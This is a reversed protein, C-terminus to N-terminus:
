YSSSLMLKKLHKKTERSNIYKHIEQLYIKIVRRWFTYYIKLPFSTQTTSRRKTVTKISKNFAYHTISKKLKKKEHTSKTYVKVNLQFLNSSM